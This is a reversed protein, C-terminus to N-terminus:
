FRLRGREFRGGHQRRYEASDEIENTAASQVKMLIGLDGVTTKSLVDFTQTNNTAAIVVDGGVEDVFGTKMQLNADSDFFTVNGSVGVGGQGTTYTMVEAATEVRNVVDARVSAGDEADLKATSEVTVDANSSFDAYTFALQPTNVDKVMAQTAVISTFDTDAHIDLDNAATVSGAVTVNSSADALAVALGIVPIYGDIPTLTGLSAWGTSDGINLDLTTEAGITVDRGSLTASEGIVVDASADVDAWEVTSAGLAGLYMTQLNESLAGLNFTNKHELLNYTEAKVTLDGAATVKGNVEVKASVSSSQAKDSTEFGIFAKTEPDVTTNYTDNGALATISVDGNLGATIEAGEAVTVSADIEELGGVFGEFFESANTESHPADARALLIVDGTDDAASVFELNGELGASTIVAGNERVNVLDSFKTVGTQIRAGEEVKITGAMLAVENGANISGAVTILNNPDANIPYAGTRLNQAFAEDYRGYDNEQLNAYWVKFDDEKPVAVTLSGANIVGTSGVMMGQSSIFYLNGGVSGDKIANVTGNVTIKNNVFNLLHSAKGFQLNAIEKAALDFEKFKNIGVAGNVADTTINHVGNNSTVHTHNWGPTITSAAWLPSSLGLGMAALAAALGVAFGSRSAACVTTAGQRGKGHATRTEDTVVNMSRSRNWLVKFIKNM